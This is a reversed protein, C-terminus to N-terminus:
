EIVYEKNFRRFDYGGSVTLVRVSQWTTPLPHSMKSVCYVKRDTGFYLEYSGDKLYADALMTGYLIEKTSEM